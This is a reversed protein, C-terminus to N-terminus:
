PRDDPSRGPKNALYPAGTTTQEVSRYQRLVSRGLTSVCVMVGRGDIHQRIVYGRASAEEWAASRPSTARWADIVETYPRARSGVLELLDLVSADIPNSM